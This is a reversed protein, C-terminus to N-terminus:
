FFIQLCYIRKQLDVLEMGKLNIKNPNKYQIKIRQYPVRKIWLMIVRENSILNYIIPRDHEVVIM